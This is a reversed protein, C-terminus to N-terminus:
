CCIAEACMRKKRAEVVANAARPLRSRLRLEADCLAQNIGGIVSRDSSYPNESRSYELDRAIEEIIQVGESKVRVRYVQANCIPEQETIWGLDKAIDFIVEWVYYTRGSEASDSLPVFLRLCDVAWHPWENHHAQWLLDQDWTPRGPYTELVTAILEKFKSRPDREKSLCSAMRALASGLESLAPEGRLEPSQPMLRVGDFGDYVNGALRSSTGESLMERWETLLRNDKQNEILAARLCDIVSIGLWTKRKFHPNSWSSEFLRYLPDALQDPSGLGGALLLLNYTLKEDRRGLIKKTVASNELLAAVRRAMEEEQTPRDSGLGLGRLLWLYPEDEHGFPPLGHGILLELLESAKWSQQGLWKSVFSQMWVIPSDSVLADDDANRMTRFYVM